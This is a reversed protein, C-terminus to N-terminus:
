RSARPRGAVVRSTAAATPQPLPTTRRSIERPMRRWNMVSFSGCSKANVARSATAAVAVGTSCPIVLAESCVLDKMEAAEKKQEAEAFAVEMETM